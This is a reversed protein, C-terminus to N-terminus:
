NAEGGTNNFGVLVSRMNDRKAIKRAEGGTENKKNIPAIMSNDVSDLVGPKPKGPNKPVIQMTKNKQLWYKSPLAVQNSIESNTVPATKTAMSNNTNGPKPMKPNPPKSMIITEMTSAVCVNTNGCVWCSKACKGTDSPIANAAAQPESNPM